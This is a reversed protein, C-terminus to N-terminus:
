LSKRNREREIKSGKPEWSSFWVSGGFLFNESHCIRPLGEGCGDIWLTIPMLPKSWSSALHDCQLRRSRNRRHLVPDWWICVRSYGVEGVGGVGAAYCTWVPRTTWQVETTRSLSLLLLLINILFTLPSWQLVISGCRVSYTATTFSASYICLLMRFWPAVWLSNGSDRRKSAHLGPSMPAGRRPMKTIADDEFSLLVIAATTTCIVFLLGAESCQPSVFCGGCLHRYQQRVLSIKITLITWRPYKQDARPM